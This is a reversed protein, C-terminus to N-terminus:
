LLDISETLLDFQDFLFTLCFHIIFAMSPPISIYPVMCVLSRQLSLRYNTSRYLHATHFAFDFNFCFCFPFTPWTQTMPSLHSLHHQLPQVPAGVAHLPASVPASPPPAPAPGTMDAMLETQEFWFWSFYLYL